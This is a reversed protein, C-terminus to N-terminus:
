VYSWACWIAIVSAWDKSKVLIKPKDEQFSRSKLVQEDPNINVHTEVERAYQLRGSRVYYTKKAEHMPAFVDDNRKFVELELAQFSLAHLLHDDSLCWTYFVTHSLLVNGFISCALEQRLALPLQSLSPLDDITLPMKTM